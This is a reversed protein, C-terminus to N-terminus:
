AARQGMTLRILFVAVGVVLLLHLFGGLTTATAVGLVWLAVLIGALWFMEGRGM